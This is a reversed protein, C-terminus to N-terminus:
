WRLAWRGVAAGMVGAVLIGVTYWTAVFTATIEACYFGYASAALAGAVVGAAFGARVPRTPASRRAAFLIFPTTVLSITAVRISCLTWSQGLLADMRESGDLGAQELGVLGMVAVALGGIGILPLRVPAGPQGLRLMLWAALGALALAYAQRLLFAPQGIVEVLDPRPGLTMWVVVVSAALALGACAAARGTARHPPIPGAGAALQEILDDTNVREPKM